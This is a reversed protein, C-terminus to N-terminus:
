RVSIAVPPSINTAITGARTRGRWRTRLVVTASPRLTLKFSGDRTTRVRKITVWVRGSRRQVLVTTATPSPRVQGVLTVLVGRRVRGPPTAAFPLALAQYGPKPAGSRELVGSAWQSHDQLLYYVILSVRRNAKTRRYADAIYAAQRAKSFYTRYAAVPRTAFGYETLWLKKGKLYTRDIATTLRTLNYLDVYSRNAPTVNAPARLPYPHHSVVDMPPRLGAVGLATIFADPMVRTPAVDLPCDGPAACRDGVPATVGGAVIATRDAAKIGSYFAAQLASYTAPSVPTWGLGSRVYQPRLFLEINPENWGEWKHVGLPAYRQAAAQAFHGFDAADFPRIASEPFRSDPGVSPDRAWAPTGYVTFLVQIRRARAAAVIADYRSWDYAPDAPNTPAAPRATAVVDWRLGVRTLSAGASALIRMRPVPNAVNLLRDDEIGSIPSAGAPRVTIAPTAASAGAPSALVSGLAAAAALVVSARVRTPSSRSAM